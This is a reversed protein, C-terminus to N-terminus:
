AIYLGTSNNLVTVNLGNTSNNGFFSRVKEAISSEQAVYDICDDLLVGADQQQYGFSVPKGDEIEFEDDQALSVLMIVYLIAVVVCAKQSKSIYGM